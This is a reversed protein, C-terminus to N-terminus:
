WDCLVCLMIVTSEPKVSSQRILAKALTETSYKLMNSREALVSGDVTLHLYSTGLEIETCWNFSSLPPIPISVTWETVAGLQESVAATDLSAFLLFLPQYAVIWSNLNVHKPDHWNLVMLAVSSCYTPM